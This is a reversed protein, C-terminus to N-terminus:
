YQRARRPQLTESYRVRAYPVGTARINNNYKKWCMLISDSRTVRRIKNHMKSAMSLGINKGAQRWRTRQHQKRYQPQWFILSIIRKALTLIAINPEINVYVITTTYGAIHNNRTLIGM